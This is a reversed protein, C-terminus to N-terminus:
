MGLHCLRLPVRLGIAESCVAPLIYIVRPCVWKGEIIGDLGLIHAYVGIIRNVPMGDVITAVAELFWGQGEGRKIIIVGPVLVVGQRYLLYRDLSGTM